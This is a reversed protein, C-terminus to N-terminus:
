GRENLWVRMQGKGRNGWSYYPILKIQTKEEAPPKDSYLGGDTKLRIGEALLTPFGGNESEGVTIRGGRLVALNQLEGNDASEACYVVAGRTVAVKGINHRVKENTYIRRVPMEFDVTVIDGGRWIRTIYCYGDRMDKSFDYAVGNVFVTTKGAWEPIRFTFSFENNTIDGSFKYKMKGSNQYDTELTIEANKAKFVAKSGIFLHSYIVNENEGWIYEGLSSIFRAINPPCCACAYWKPREPLVHKFGHLEGSIGPEVELPNCYFFNKGDLSIGSIIGNYILKELIDSYESSPKIEVMRRAFFALGISACTEGYVSDNPLDYDVTFAEGDANSGIAGTIYMKKNVINEWLARCSKYLEEDGTEAALDAMATYMYVARVAHGVAEKQERVPIHAQHYRGDDGPKGWVEWGINKYEEAFYCPKKGRVNIFRGALELYKKDHTVRYLKLLALEIEQHGPYGAKKQTVFLEYILDANKRMINLFADKGTAEYYAAAAEIFHGACYLEHAERLNSFKERDKNIIFYTNLYGNPQQAAGLLSIIEDARKELEKDPCVTLSYSVAELWKALDSDQFVLGYFEGQALGAAIRFNEFVHSKEAGEVKDDMIKEQYPIVVERILKQYANWFSDTIAVNKLPVSHNQKHPM